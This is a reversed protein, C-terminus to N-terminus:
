KVTTGSYTPLSESQDKIKREENLLDGYVRLYEGVMVASSFHEEMSRRCAARDIEDLRAVAAIMEEVSECVFGNEGDRVVEPVAGKRFGIVPTGCALAEAMVIGFPEEWLIPMLLAVARGLLKNKQADDVAGVYQVSDGDVHPLIEAEFYGRHAEAVNGAIILRRGSRKAVEIAVHPGKIREVRGLFVLPADTTVQSRFEYRDAGVGNYVIHWRGLHEVKEIMARSCAAFQLTGRSLRHGWAVSRPSIDRQYSMLKPISLPMLPILYALRGFSHILDYRRRTIRESIRAANLASNWIGDSRQAAYPVLECPVRSDPNAFLTLQHGKEVLGSVLLSVVREIGGYKVPPVPIEPDVTIAIRLLRM